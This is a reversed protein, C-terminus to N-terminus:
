ADGAKLSRKKSQYEEETLIGAKKLANLQDLQKNDTETKAPSPPSKRTQKGKKKHEQYPIYVGFFGISLIIACITVTRTPLLATYASLIMSAM